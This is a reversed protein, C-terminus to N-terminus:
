QTNPELRDLGVRRLRERVTSNVRYTLFIARAEKFEELQIELNKIKEIHFDRIAICSNIESELDEIKHDLMLETTEIARNSM